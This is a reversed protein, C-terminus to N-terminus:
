LDAVFGVDEAVQVAALEFCSDELAFADACDGWRVGAALQLEGRLGFGVGVLLSGGTGLVVVDAHGSGCGEGCLQGGFALAEFRVVGRYSCHDALVRAVLSAAPFAV